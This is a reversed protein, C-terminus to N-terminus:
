TAQITSSQVSFFATLVIKSDFEPSHTAANGARTSSGQTIAAIRAAQFHMAALEVQNKVGTRAHFIQTILQTFCIHEIIINEHRVRMNVM